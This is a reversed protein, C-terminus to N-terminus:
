ELPRGKTEPVLFILAGGLAFFAATFLLAAGIGKSDALAGITYPALASVARGSNYCIGQATARIGSPFLESLMSGFVTYYGHGFAGILPGMAMLLVPSEAAFAYVPIVAAAGLVFILFMPRRGIRDSYFGFVNYGIFAGVQVPVIWAASRVLGLGAGGKAVPSSLYAPMWSFLGWYGFLLSTCIPTAILMRRLYPQKLLIGASQKKPAAHWIAPEPIERRIWVTLLAPLTGVAFLWRWGFIPIIAASLLAAALYGIAWGSQVLGIAKGRHEAPWTESVLVTGASWEAGLGLGVLARWLALEVLTRSTATLGTFISYILISWILVRTRGFRDALFGATVGGLAATLLPLSAMLGANASSIGFEKQITTLAFAYLMVDMGELMWGLQAALLTRWPLATAARYWPTV